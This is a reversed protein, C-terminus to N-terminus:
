GRGDRWRMVLERASDGVCAGEKLAIPNAASIIGDEMSSRADGIRASAASVTFARIRRHELIALRGIGAEDIGIGADNFAAAFADAGLAKAPDGGIIGGHSGTVVIAGIDAQADVLAASDILVLSRKGVEHYCQRKAEYAPGAKIPRQAAAQLLAVAQSCSMAPAVGLRAAALNVHSIVGRSVMDDPDGIRCSTHSVAAAAIGHQGLALLGAIGASDKGVAADCFIIARIGFKAALAAPYLGGHSGCIVVAGLAESGLTTVTPSLVYTM